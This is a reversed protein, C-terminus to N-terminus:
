KQMELLIGLLAAGFSCHKWTEWVQQNTPYRSCFFFSLFVTYYKKEREERPDKIPILAHHVQRRLTVGPKNRRRKVKSDLVEALTLCRYPIHSDDKGETLFFAYLTLQRIWSIQMM